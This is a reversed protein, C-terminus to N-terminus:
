WEITSAARKLLLPSLFSFKALLWVERTAPASGRETAVQIKLAQGVAKGNSWSQQEQTEQQPKLVRGRGETDSLPSGSSIRVM